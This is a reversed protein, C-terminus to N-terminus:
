FQRALWFVIVINVATYPYLVYWDWKPSAMFRRLRRLILAYVPALIISVCLDLLLIGIGALDAGAVSFLSFLLVIFTDLAMFVSSVAVGFRTQFSFPRTTIEEQPQRDFHKVIAWLGLLAIFVIAATAIFPLYNYAPTPIVSAPGVDAAGSPQSGQASLQPVAVANVASM